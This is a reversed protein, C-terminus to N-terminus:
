FSFGVGAKATFVDASGNNVIILNDAVLRTYQVGGSLFWRGGCPPSPLTTSASLAVSVFGLTQQQGQANFYYDDMSLGFQIPVSVVAKQECWAFRWAPELGLELYADNSGNQDYTEWILGASPRLAFASREGPPVWLACLDYGVKLGLEHIVSTADMPSNNYIAFNADFTFHNWTVFVGAMGEVMVAMRNDLDLLGFSNWSTLYPQVVAADDPNLTCALTLFPQLILGSNDQLYGRRYYAPTYDLGGTFFARPGRPAAAEAPAELAGDATGALAAAEDPLLM